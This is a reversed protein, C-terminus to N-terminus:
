DKYQGIKKRRSKIVRGPNPYNLILLEKGVAKKSNSTGCYIWQQPIITFGKFLSRVYPHDDYSICLKHKCERALRAFREHDDLEFSYAYLKDNVSLTTERMYPPDCYIWVADGPKSLLEEYDGCTIKTGKVHEAADDLRRTAVIDWGEPNSFYLRSKREYDVRGSWVTRNVFFYRFAQDGDNNLKVADFQEKLRKNYKKGSSGPTPYVLPEDARAPKVAKCHKVFEEPRDRLALYVEILGNNIDNIWRPHESSVSFFIGGGGVFPERYERYGNPAHDLILKRVRAKTKGGPYRLISRM